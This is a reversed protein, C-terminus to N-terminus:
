LEQEYHNGRIKNIIGSQYAINTNYYVKGIKDIPKIFIEQFIKLYQVTRM